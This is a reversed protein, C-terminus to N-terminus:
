KQESGTDLGCLTHLVPAGCHHLTLLSLLLGIHYVDLCTFVSLLLLQQSPFGSECAAPLSIWASSFPNKKLHWLQDSSASVVNVQCDLCRALSLCVLLVFSYSQPGSASSMQFQTSGSGMSDRESPAFALTFSKGGVSCISPQKTTKKKGM